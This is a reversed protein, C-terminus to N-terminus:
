GTSFRERIEELHRFNKIGMFEAANHNTILGTNWAEIVLATYLDGKDSRYRSGYYAPRAPPPEYEAEEKIFQSRKREWYYSGQVYGLRVMRILMAHPSVAFSRAVVRLTDDSIEPWPRAPKELLTSLADSPMLFAGAFNDCWDEVAKGSASEPRTGAPGSIASQRLVVHGLEHALTFAQASPAETGFVIVPLPFTALCLGRARVKNLASDKLVLIGASELKRRFLKPFGDRESGKLGLQISVSFDLAARVRTAAAEEDDRQSATLESPVSPPADGLTEYLDLANLRQEEAWAQIDLLERRERPDPAGRHMRLDPVLTPEKLPPPEDLLFELFPREYFAALERAKKVTPVKRGEEWDAVNTPDTGVRRAAEEITRQRRERAWRLVDKSFPVKEKLAAM